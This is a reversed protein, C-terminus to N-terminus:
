LCMAEKRSGISRAADRQNTTSFNRDGPSDHTCLSILVLATSCTCYKVLDMKFLVRLDGRLLTSTCKYLSGAALLQDQDLYRFWCGARLWRSHVRTSRQLQALHQGPALGLPGLQPPLHAASPTVM